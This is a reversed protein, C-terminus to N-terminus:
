KLLKLFEDFDESYEVKLSAKLTSIEQESLKSKLSETVTLYLRNLIEDRVLARDTVNQSNLLHQYIERNDYKLTYIDHYFLQLADLPLSINYQRSLKIALAHQKLCEVVEAKLKDANFDVSLITTIYQYESITFPIGDITLMTFKDLTQEATMFKAIEELESSSYLEKPAKLSFSERTSSLAARGIIACARKRTVYSEPYFTGYENNGKLIGANYFLIVSDYYPLSKPVDPISSVTNIEPYFERPLANATLIVLEYSKIPRTFNSFENESIIRNDVAYMVYKDYWAKSNEPDSIENGNYIAHLRSAITIGQAVSLNSETDFKDASVGDMIGLEFVDAVNSYFWDSQKVDTFQGNYSKTKKFYAETAFCTYSMMIILLIFTMFKIAKKM